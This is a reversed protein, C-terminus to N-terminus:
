GRKIAVLKGGRLVVMKPQRKKDAAAAAAAKLPKGSEKDGDAKLIKEAEARSREAFLGTIHDRRCDEFELAAVAGRERRAAAPSPPPKYDKELAARFGVFNVSSVTSSM